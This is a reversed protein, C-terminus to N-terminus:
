CICKYGRGKPVYTEETCDRITAKTPRTQLDTTYTEKTPREPLGRRYTEKTVFQGTNHLRCKHAGAKPVFTKTSFDSITKREKKKSHHIGLKIVPSTNEKTPRNWVLSASLKESDKAGYESIWAKTKAAGAAFNQNHSMPIADSLANGFFKPAPSM